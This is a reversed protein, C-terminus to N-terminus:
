IAPSPLRFRSAQKLLFSGAKEVNYQRNLKFDLRYGGWKHVHSLSAQTFCDEVSTEASERNQQEALQVKSAVIQSVTRCICCNQYASADLSERTKHHGFSLDYTGKWRPNKHQELMQRCVLCIMAIAIPIQLERSFGVAWLTPTVSYPV